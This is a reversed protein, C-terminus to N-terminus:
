NHTHPVDGLSAGGWARAKGFRSSATHLTQRTVIEVQKCQLVTRAVGEALNHPKSPQQQIPHTKPPTHIYKTAFLLHHHPCLTHREVSPHVHVCM